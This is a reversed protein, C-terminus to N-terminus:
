RLLEGHPSVASESLQKIQHNKGTLWHAHQYKKESPRHHRQWQSYEDAPCDGLDVVGDSAVRRFGQIM